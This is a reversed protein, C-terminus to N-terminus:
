KEEIFPMTADLSQVKNLEIAYKHAPILKRYQNLVDQYYKNENQNQLRQLIAECEKLNLHNVKKKKKKETMNHLINCM